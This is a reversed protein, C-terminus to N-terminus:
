RRNFIKRYLKIVKSKVVLKIKIKWFAKKKKIEPNYFVAENIFNKAASYDKTLLKRNALYLAREGFTRCNEGILKNCNPIHKDYRKFITKTVEFHERLFPVLDWEGWSRSVSIPHVRYKVLPNGICAINYFLMMRMWMESDNCHPFEPNFSGVKEYCKRRALVAGIFISAGGSLCSLYRHFVTLGDEVYDRRSDANWIESAIVEGKEDILILNSHVLGVDANEDLIHVKRELNEPLMVDDHHLICVYEGRALELCRNANGVLGLNKTNRVYKLRSDHFSRVIEQTNDTSCNDCITLDFDEYTQALVSDISEAIYKSGNYVPICVSVKPTLSGNM